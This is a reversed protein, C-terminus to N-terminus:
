PLVFTKNSETDIVIEYLNSFAIKHTHSRMDKMIMFDNDVSQLRGFHTNGNQLVANIEIGSAKELKRFEEPKNIRTLRKSM